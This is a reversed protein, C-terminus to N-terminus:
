RSEAQAEGAKRKRRNRPDLRQEAARAKLKKIKAFDQACCCCRRRCACVHTCCAFRHWNLHLLPAVSHALPCLVRGLV